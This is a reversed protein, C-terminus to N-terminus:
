LACRSTCQSVDHSLACRRVATVGRYLRMAADIRADQALAANLIRVERLLFAYTALAVIAVLALYLM